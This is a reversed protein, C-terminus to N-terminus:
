FKKSGVQGSLAQIQQQFAKRTTDDWLGEQTERKIIETCCLWDRTTSNDEESDLSVTYHM